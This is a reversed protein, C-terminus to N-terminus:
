YSHEQYTGADDGYILGTSLLSLKFQLLGFIQPDRNGQCAVTFDPTASSAAPLAAPTSLQLDAYYGLTKRGSGLFYIDDGTYPGAGSVDPYTFKSDAVSDYYA